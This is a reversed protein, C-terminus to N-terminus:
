TRDRGCWVAVAHAKTKASLKRLVGSFVRRVTHPSLNLSRALELDTRGRSCEQLCLLEIPTLQTGQPSAGEDAM